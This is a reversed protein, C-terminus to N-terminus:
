IGMTEFESEESRQKPILKLHSMTPPTPSPKLPKPSPPLQNNLQVPAPGIDVANVQAAFGSSPPHEHFYEAPPQHEDFYEVPPPQEHAYQVPPAIAKFIGQSSLIGSGSIQGEKSQFSQQQKRFQLLTQKIREQEIEKDEELIRQSLLYFVSM